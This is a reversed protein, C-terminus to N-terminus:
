NQLQQRYEADVIYDRKLPVTNKRKALQFQFVVLGTHRFAAECAALYFEWMRCFNDDYLAVLTARNALFRLRWARLTEAYHLRLVEIDTVILGSKEIAPLVESMAPVYGGPFIYKEIWASPAGPPGSTGITHVLAAGDETLRDAIAKFYTRYHPTGVHEFMGVSVIRDYQGTEHRYDRLHFTVSSDLGANITERRAYTLQERSLTLGTVSVQADRALFRAMGGWGSGIDLVRQGPQLLLKIAIHRSKQIQAQELTDEPKAFYACSYQRDTDLFREYLQSALDYHHAVNHRSRGAPNFLKLPRTLRRLSLRVGRVTSGTADGLNGLVLDLFDYIDGHDVCLSGDMYAEGAALDPNLAIRRLSRACKITAFICPNGSGFQRRSGDPFTLVLTGHKISRDLFVCLLQRWLGIRGHPREDFTMPIIKDIENM